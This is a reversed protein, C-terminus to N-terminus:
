TSTGVLEMVAVPAADGVRQGLKYIRTYGGPRDQFRPGIERFLKQLVAPNSLRGAALRRAHLDGRRALTILREVFPRLAKAKADTTQIRGHELLATALNRLLARRHAKSRHLKKGTKRHWM